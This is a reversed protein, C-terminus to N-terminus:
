FNSAIEKAYMYAFPAVRVPSFNEKNVTDTSLNEADIQVKTALRTRTSSRQITGTAISETESESPLAADDAAFLGADDEPKVVVADLEESAPGAQQGDMEQTSRDAEAENNEVHVEAVAYEELARGQTTADVADHPNQACDEEDVHVVEVVHTEETEGHKKESGIGSEVSSGTSRADEAVVVVTTAQSDNASESITSTSPTSSVSEKHRPPTELNGKEPTLGGNAQIVTQMSLSKRRREICYSRALICLAAIALLIATGMMIFIWWPTSPKEGGGYEQLSSEEIVPLVTTTNDAEVAAVLEQTDEPASSTTQDKFPDVMQEGIEDVIKNLGEMYNKAQFLNYQNFVREMLDSPLKLDSGTRVYALKAAEVGILLQFNKCAQQTLGYTDALANGFNTLDTDTISQNNATKIRKALVVYIQVSETLNDHCADPAKDTYEISGDRL